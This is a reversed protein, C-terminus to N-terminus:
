NKVTGGTARKASPLAKKDSPKQSLKKKQTSKDGSTANADLTQSLASANRGGTRKVKRANLKEINVYANSVINFIIRFIM